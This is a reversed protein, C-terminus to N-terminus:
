IRCVYILLAFEVGDIMIIIIFHINFVIIYIFIYILFKFLIFNINPYANYEAVNFFFFFYYYYYFQFQRFIFPPFHPTNIGTLRSFYPEINQAVHSLSVPMHILIQVRLCSIYKFPSIALTTTSWNYPDLVIPSKRTRTLNRWESKSM